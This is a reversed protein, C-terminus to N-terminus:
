CYRSALFNVSNWLCDTICPTPDALISRSGLARPGIEMRGQFWGIIMGSHLIKAADVCVDDSKVYDLKFTKLLKEIQADSYGTGLYPNDLCYRRNNGLVKQFSAAVNEHYKEFSASREMKRPQGFAEIFKQSIQKPVFKQYEFWSLDMRIEGNTKIKVMSNVTDFFPEPDGFPALGM